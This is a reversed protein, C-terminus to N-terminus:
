FAQLKTKERQRLGTRNFPPQCVILRECASVSAAIRACALVESDVLVGDCDFIVLLRTSGSGAAPQSHTATMQRWSM